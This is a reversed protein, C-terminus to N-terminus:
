KILWSLPETHKGNKRVEFHLHPGTSRGTSGAKAIVDGRKVSQGPSSVLRSNHAYLTEIGGGHNIIIVNGYTGKPGVFSVIGDGAAVIDAGTNASIDVGTHLKNKVKTVPHTRYGYHSTIRTSSPVPWQFLGGEFAGFDGIYTGSAGSFGFTDLFLNLHNLYDGFQEIFDYSQPMMEAMLYMAYPDSKTDIKNDQLFGIFRDNYDASEGVLDWSNVLITTTTTTTETYTYNKETEVVEGLENIKTSTRSVTYTRTSTNEVTQTDTIEEYEFITNAFMTDVSEILALPRYTKIETYDVKKDTSGEGSTVVEVKITKTTIEEKNSTMNYTSGKTYNITEPDSFVFNPKLEEKTRDVIKLEYERNATDNIADIAAIAQWWQRYPYASDGRNYSYDLYQKSNSAGGDGWTKTEQPIKIVVNKLYSSDEIQAYKYIKRPHISAGYSQMHKIDEDSLGQAWEKMDIPNIDAMQQANGYISTSFIEFIVAVASITVLIFLSFIFVNFAFGKVLLWLAKLIKDKILKIAYSADEVIMKANRSGTAINKVLNLIGKFLGM